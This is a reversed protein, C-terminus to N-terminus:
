QSSIVLNAPSLNEGSVRLLIKGAKRKARIIALCLGNYASHEGARFSELGAQYGNDLGALSGEGGIRFTLRNAAAPVIQGSADTIRVTIFSLDAGDARIIKRDAQLHIQAPPGATRMTRTLIIKGNRRSVAKLTGPQWAVRWSVHLDDGEKRKIGLSRGNLFLEVEDANNYYAWVDILQDKKWNWHPFLHLIPRSTWESQYM